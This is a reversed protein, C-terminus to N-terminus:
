TDVERRIAERYPDSAAESPGPSPAPLGREPPARGRAYRVVIMAGLVIAMAPGLWVLWNFGRARPELLVWEGYRDVFHQLIEEEGVGAVVLERVRAMMAHAMEAPSDAASMGQCVACRIKKGIRIAREELGAALPASAFGETQAIAAASALLLALHGTM